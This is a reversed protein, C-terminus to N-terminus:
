MEPSFSRSFSRGHQHFHADSKWGLSAEASVTTKIRETTKAGLKIADFLIDTYVRLTLLPKHEDAM